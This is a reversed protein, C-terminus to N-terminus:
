NSFTIESAPTSMPFDADTFGGVSQAATLETLDGHDTIQPKEFTLDKGEM